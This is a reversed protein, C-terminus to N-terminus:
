PSPLFLAEVRLNVRLISRGGRHLRSVLLFNVKIAKEYNELIELVEALGKIDGELDFSIEVKEIQDRFARQTLIRFSRVSIEKVESLKKQLASVIVYPDRGKFLYKKVSDGGQPPVKITKLKEQYRKVLVEKQALLAKNERWKEYQPWLYSGFLFLAVLLPLGALILNTKERRLREIFKEFRM